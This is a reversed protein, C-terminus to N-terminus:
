PLRSSRCIPIAVQNRPAIWGIRADFRIVAIGLREARLAADPLCGGSHFILGRRGDSAVLAVMREVLPMGINGRRNDVLAVYRSSYLDCVSSAEGVAAVTDAEGLYTMWERCLEIADRDDVGDPRLAPRQSNVHGDHSSCALRRM